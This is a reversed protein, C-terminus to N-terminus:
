GRQKNNFLGYTKSVALIFMIGNGPEDINMRERISNAIADTNEASAIIMVIEKEPEIAMSFLKATEHIGSGRANIITAGTSGAEVATDVVLEAKGREVIVFIANHMYCGEEQKIDKIKSYTCNRNGFLGKVPITFAIGNNRKEFKIIKNLEDLVKVAITHEAVMLVIEKRVENLDLLELLHSKVTGRGLLITGGTIGNNKALKLIRSGHNYNVVLCILEINDSLIKDVM